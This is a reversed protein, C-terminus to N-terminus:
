ISDSPKFFFKSFNITLLVKGAPALPFWANIPIFPSANLSDGSSTSDKHTSPHTIIDLVRLFLVGITSPNGTNEDRKFLFLQITAHTDIEKFDFFAEKEQAQGVHSVRCAMRNTWEFDSQISIEFSGESSTAAHDIGKISHVEISLCGTRPPRKPEESYNNGEICQLFLKVEYTWDDHIHLPMGTLVSLIGEFDRCLKLDTAHRDLVSEFYHTTKEFFRIKEKIAAVEAACTELDSCREIDSELGIIRSQYLRRM